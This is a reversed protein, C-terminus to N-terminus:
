RRVSPCWSRFTTRTGTSSPRPTSSRGDSGIARDRTRPLPTPTTRAMPTRSWNSAPTSGPAGARHESVVEGKIDGLKVFGEGDIEVEDMSVQTPFTLSMHTYGPDNKILEISTGQDGSAAMAATGTGLLSTGLLVSGVTAALLNNTNIKM